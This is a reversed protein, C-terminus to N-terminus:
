VYVHASVTLMDRQKAHQEMHRLCFTTCMFIHAHTYVAAASRIRWWAEGLQEM